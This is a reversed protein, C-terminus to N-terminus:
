FDRFGGKGSGAGVPEPMPFDGHSSAPASASSKKPAAARPAFKPASAVSRVNPVRVSASSRAAPAADGPARGRILLQLERVADKLVAAQANLEESAAACEEATSANAQTVKDIQTVAMNVESIGQIQEHSASAVQTVEEDVKQANAVIEALKQELLQSKAVVDEVSAVVKDTVRVGDDSRQISAEIMDATEKAARASRQALNRVEDAVVAFGMGAEGARAAEVAANLALINTQFAIEDITKIIKSVDNSASKIGNMADRMEGSASRIGQMATGMDHTSQAGAEANARTQATIGKASQVNQGNRQTMSSIEELSASTEELSAAQESAGEALSQSAASVQSAASAVQASGEALSTSITGLVKSISRIITFAFGAGVLLALMVAVVTKARSAILLDNLMLNTAEVSKVNYEQAARVAAEYAAFAKSANGHLAEESAAAKNETSSKRLHRSATRYENLLPEIKDALQREEPMAITKIYNALLTLIKQAEEDAKKELEAMEATEASVVHRLNIVRYDLTEALLESTLLVQHNDKSLSQMAEGIKRSELWNSVGLLTILLLLVSFGLTIRKGITWSKM